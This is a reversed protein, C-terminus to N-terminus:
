WGEMLEPPDSALFQPQFVLIPNSEVSFPSLVEQSRGPYIGAPILEQHQWTKTRSEMPYIGPYKGGPEMEGQINGSRGPINKRKAWSAQELREFGGASTPKKKQQIKKGTPVADLM